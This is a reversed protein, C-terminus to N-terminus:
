ILNLLVIVEVIVEIDLLIHFLLRLGLVSGLQNIGQKFVRKMCTKFNLEWHSLTSIFCNATHACDFKGKRVRFVGLVEVDESSIWVGLVGVGVVTNEGTLQRVFWLCVLLENKHWRLFHRFRTIFLLKFVAINLEPM